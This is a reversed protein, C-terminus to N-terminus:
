LNNEEQLLAALRTTSQSKLRRTVEIVKAGVLKAQRNKHHQRPDGKTTALVLPSIKEVLRDYDQSQFNQPLCIVYDVCSLAALIQARDKQKNIPRTEGKLRRVTKDSELIVLLVDGEKKAKELFTLHGLHLLDFCGGALVIVKEQEKLKKSIIVAEKLNIIKNM